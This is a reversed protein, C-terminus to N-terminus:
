CSMSGMCLGAHSNLHMLVSVRCRLFPTTWVCRSGYLDPGEFSHLVDTSQVPHHGFAVTNSHWYMLEQASVFAAELYSTAGLSQLVIIMFQTRYRLAQLSEKDLSWLEEMQM